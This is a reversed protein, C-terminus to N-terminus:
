YHSSAILIKYISDSHRERILLSINYYPFFYIHNRMRKIRKNNVLEIMLDDLM